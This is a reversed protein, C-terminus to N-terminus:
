IGQLCRPGSAEPVSARGRNSADGDVASLADVWGCCCCFSGGGRPNLPKLNGPTGDESLLPALFFLSVVGFFQVPWYDRYAGFIIKLAKLGYSFVNSAVRSRGHERVGRIEMPVEVIRLGKVALDLISEQTYTFDGWLNLHLPCGSWKLARSNPFGLPSLSKDNHIDIYHAKLGGLTPDPYTSKAYSESCNIKYKEVM